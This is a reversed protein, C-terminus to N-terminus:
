VARALRLISAAVSLTQLFTETRGGARIWPIRVTACSVTIRSASEGRGESRRPTFSPQLAQIPSADTCRRDRGVHNCSPRQRGHMRCSVDRQTQVQLWRPSHVRRSVCQRGAVELAATVRTHCLVLHTPIEVRTLICKVGHRPVGQQAGCAGCAGSSREIHKTLLRCSSLAVIGYPARRLSGTLAKFPFRMVPLNSTSRLPVPERGHGNLCRWQGSCLDCSALSLGPAVRAAQISGPRLRRM